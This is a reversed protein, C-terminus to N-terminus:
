EQNKHQPPSHSHGKAVNRRHSDQEIVLKGRSRHAQRYFTRGGAKKATPKDKKERVNRM